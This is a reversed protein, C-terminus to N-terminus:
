ACCGTARASRARISAAIVRLVGQRQLRRYRRAVTQESVSLVEGIASFAARPRLQLCRVIQADVDDLTVSDTTLPTSM